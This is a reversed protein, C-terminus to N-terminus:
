CAAVAAATAGPCCNLRKSKSGTPTSPKPEDACTRSIRSLRESALREPLPESTAILDTKLVRLPTSSRVAWAYAAVVM